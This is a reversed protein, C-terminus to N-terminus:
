PHAEVFKVVGYVFAAWGVLVAAVALATKGSAYQQAEVGSVDSLPIETFEGMVGGPREVFGVLTDGEMHAGTVNVQTGDTRTVRVLKPRV